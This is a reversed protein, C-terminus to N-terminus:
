LGTASRVAQGAPVALAPVITALAEVQPSSLKLLLLETGTGPECLTLRMLLRWVM